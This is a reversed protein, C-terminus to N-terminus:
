EIGAEMKWFAIGSAQKGVEVSAVRRATELDIVELAGPEGGVGEVSVFAYRSDPSMAVGHALPRTTPIRAVEIGAELDWIGVSGDARHTVVLSRGDPSVGINYPGPATSFRRGLSWNAVDIERVEDAGNLAVWLSRGDPSPEVWTPRLGSMAMGEGEGAPMHEAHGAHDALSLRRSPEFRWADTEVVEDSMMTVAYHRDGAANLRSGHPMVGVEVEGVQTMTETDVISVTGPAMPGHLDFNSVYLLGTSWSVDITAPFMGVEAAGAWADEGTSFRHVTGYPNGHALSVYWYRGDRAVRLGHPGEIETPRIGVPITKRVEIGEPGFRVLSVQDESEAAVYIWYANRPPNQSRADGEPGWATSMLILVVAPKLLRM